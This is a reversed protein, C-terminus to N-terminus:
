GYDFGDGAVILGRGKQVPDLLLKEWEKIVERGKCEKNKHLLDGFLNLNDNPRKYSPGWRMLM